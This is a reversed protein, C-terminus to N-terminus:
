GRSLSRSLISGKFAAAEREASTANEDKIFIVTEVEEGIVDQDALEKDKDEGDAFLKLVPHGLEKQILESVLGATIPTTDSPLTVEGQKRVVNSTPYRRRVLLTRQLGSAKGASAASTSNTVTSVCEKCIDDAGLLQEDPLGSVVTPVTRSDPWLLRYAQAKQRALDMLRIVLSRKILCGARPRNVLGHTCVVGGALSIVGPNVPRSPLVGECEAGHKTPSKTDGDAKKASSANDADPSGQNAWRAKAAEKLFAIWMKEPSSADSDKVTKSWTNYVQLSIWAAEADCGKSLKGEQVIQTKVHFEERWIKYLRWLLECVQSDIAEKATLFLSLDVGGARGALEQLAKAPVLKVEGCWVALPDIAHPSEKCKSRLLSRGYTVPSIEKEGRVLDDVSCDEGRLFDNLWSTPVFCFSTLDVSDVARGAGSDAGSTQSLRLATAMAKVMEHRETSFNVIASTKESFDKRQRKFVDNRSAVFQSLSAPLSTTDSLGRAAALQGPKHNLRRYLVLYAASSQIRDPTIAGTLSDADDDDDRKKGADARKWVIPGIRDDDLSWWAGRRPKGAAADADASEYRRRKAVPEEAAVDAKAALSLAEAVDADEDFLTATYHGSHASDSVHELYGICEYQVTPARSVTLPTPAQSVVAVEGSAQPPAYARLELRKPFSVADCLKKREDKKFDYHSREITVHLYPPAKILRTTKLADVKKQCHPCQWGDLVEDPFFTDQLLHELRVPQVVKKRSSNRKNKAPQDAATAALEAIASDDHSDAVSNLVVTSENSRASCSQQQARSTPTLRAQLMLFPEPQVDVRHAPNEKCVLSQSTKGQFLAQIFNFNDAAERDICNMELFDLLLSSFESVDAEERTDLELAKAFESPDVACREGAAMLAFVRQLECVAAHDSRIHLCVSRFDRNFFLYQLLSNLYCTAGLNTLGAPLAAGDSSFRNQKEPDEGLAQLRPPDSQWVGCKDNFNLAVFASPFGLATAVKDGSKDQSADSGGRVPHTTHGPDRAALRYFALTDREKDYENSAAFALVSNLDFAADEGKQGAKPTRVSTSGETM